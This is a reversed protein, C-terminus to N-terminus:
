YRIRKYYSFIMKDLNDSQIISFISDTYTNIHTDDYNYEEWTEKIKQKLEDKIGNYNKIIFNNKNKNNKNKHYVKM